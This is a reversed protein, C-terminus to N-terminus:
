AITFGPSTRHPKPAVEQEASRPRLGTRVVWFDQCWLPPDSHRRQARRDEVVLLGQQAAIIQCYFYFAPSMGRRVVLLDPVVHTAPRKLAPFWGM